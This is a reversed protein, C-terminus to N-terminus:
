IENNLELLRALSHDFIENFIIKASANSITGDEVRAIIAALYDPPVLVQMLQWRQDTTM